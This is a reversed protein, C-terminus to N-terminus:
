AADKKQGASYKPNRDERHKAPPCHQHRPMGEEKEPKFQKIRGKKDKSTGQKTTLTERGAQRKGTGLKLGTRLHVKGGDAFSSIEEGLAAQYDFSLM